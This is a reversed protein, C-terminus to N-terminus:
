RKSVLRKVVKRAAAEGERVWVEYFPIQGLQSWVYNKLQNFPRGNLDRGSLGYDEAAIQKLLPYTYLHAAGMTYPWNMDALHTVWQEGTVPPLVLDKGKKELLGYEVPDVQAMLAAAKIFHAVRELGVWNCIVKKGDMSAGLASLQHAAAMALVIRSDFRRHMLEATVYICHAHWTDDYVTRPEELWSGDALWQYLWVKPYEHVCLAAAPLDRNLPLGLAQRYHHTYSDAMRINYAVTMALGGPHANYFDNHSSPATLYTQPTLHGQPWVEDPHDEKNFFGLRVMEKFLKKRDDDRPYMELFTVRPAAVCETMLRRYGVDELSSAVALLENYASTVPRSARAMDEPTMAIVAELSRAPSLDLDKSFAGYDFKGPLKKAPGGQVAPAHHVHGHGHQHKHGKAM